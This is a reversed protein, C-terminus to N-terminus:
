DLLRMSLDLARTDKTLAGISIFDVGTEAVSRLTTETINGSAELELRKAVLAVADRMAQLTFNDLMVRDAGAGLAQELEAMTEVEVEVPKGPAVKHAERVAAAIGGCANIHNEKILFADYLGIRHNHCGGCRVAYKQAKRLGPITKRTDLLRVGTGTVLTAYHHCRTATGSLLQLFNLASREATLLARAPGRVTFLTSGATILEGDASSWEPQLDPDVAAFVADVWARGCLVGDERTIVRATAVAAAPILAATIDGGGVDEALAARVNDHIDNDTLAPM